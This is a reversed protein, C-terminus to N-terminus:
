KKLRRRHNENREDYVVWWIRTYLDHLRKGGGGKRETTPKFKEYDIEDVMLSTAVAFDSRLCYFRFDYDMKPTAIIGSTHYHAMYRKVCKELTKRDRSRVQLDYGFAPNIPDEAIDAPIAAPMLIGFNTMIWM